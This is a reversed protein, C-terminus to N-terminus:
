PNLVTAGTTRRSELARHAEAADRLAFEQNIAMTVTGDALVAFLEKASAEYDARKALYTVITPRTAFLAGKQQLMGMTFPPPLGSSQGFSAMMGLPKLCNFSGEFTDKGVSDYVCDVGEGSTIEKVRKVFDETRYNIVHTCGNKRAVEAKADDGVTGIIAAGLASVWQAAILGVGGAVAHWLITQGPDVKFTRRILCQVTLGKLFGGAAVKPDIGAPLKVARDAPLLRSEAYAGLSVQYVVTDGAALGTVGEGVAEVEGVGEAGPILRFGGPPPYVGGRYYCDIFNVGIAKHRLRIQGPGPAGVEVAEWKLVEPGGAEHVRMAHTMTTEKM